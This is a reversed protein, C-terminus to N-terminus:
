HLLRLALARAVAQARNSANLKVLLRAVQHRVTHESRGGIQAIEWNTKGEVLWGLVDRERPTLQVVPASATNGLESVGALSRVLAMHMHPTLLELLRKHRPTLPGPVRAFKFFSGLDGGVDRVGHVLLNGVQFEGFVEQWLRDDVGADHRPDYTQPAHEARWRALIPSRVSGDPRRLADFYALPWDNAILKRVSVERLRFEALGCVMMGHPLLAQLDTAAWRQFTAASKVSLLAELMGMLRAQEATGLSQAAPKMDAAVSFGILSPTCTPNALRQTM